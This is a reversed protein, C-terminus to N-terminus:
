KDGNNENKPRAQSPGPLGQSRVGHKPDATHDAQSPLLFPRLGEALNTRGSSSGFDLLSAFPSKRMRKKASAKTARLQRRLLTLAVEQCLSIYAARGYRADMPNEKIWRQMPKKTSPAKLIEQVVLTDNFDILKKSHAFANRIARVIHLNDRTKKNYIAFAYGTVIKAYLSRTPRTRICNRGLIMTTENSNVDFFPM